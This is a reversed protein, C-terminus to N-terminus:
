METVWAKCYAVGEKVDWRVSKIKGLGDFNMDKWIQEDTPKAMTKQAEPNSYWERSYGDLHSWFDGLRDAKIIADTLCDWDASVFDGVRPASFFEAEICCGDDARCDEELYLRVKMNSTTKRERSEDDSLRFPRLRNRLRQNSARTLGLM